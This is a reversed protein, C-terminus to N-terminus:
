WAAPRAGTKQCAMQSAQVVNSAGEAVEAPISEKVAEAAAEAATAIANGAPLGGLLSPPMCRKAAAPRCAPRFNVSGCRFTAWWAASGLELRGVQPSPRLRPQRWPPRGLQQPWRLLERQLRRAAKPLPHRRRKTPRLPTRRLPTPLCCLTRRRSLSLGLPSAPALLVRHPLLSRRQRQASGLSGGSAACLACSAVRVPPQVGSMAGAMMAAEM